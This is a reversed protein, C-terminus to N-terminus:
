DKKRKDIAYSSGMVSKAAHKVQAGIEGIELMNYFRGIDAVVVGISISTLPFQEIVGKRNEVEIYGKEQDAETFFEKVRYDFNAIINQCIKESNLTPIIAVFDDGGIHGVFAGEQIMSHVCTVITDATFKIIQDGKLFGYVDNYAKFNDLDLYLVSFDEQNSLRKKLEAHIQVNGPLGTLPSIRRNITLLRSLNKVTYYLYEENVPKKIYYEISEKLIEIRHDKDPNSSVVIVPTISNDDDNRIKKCLDLVNVEIADENIIIISPINKLAKDIEDSKISIFKFDEDEKFLERFVLISLDDDDIIYIEQLM